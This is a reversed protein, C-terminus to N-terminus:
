GFVGVLFEDYTEFNDLVQGNQIRSLKESWVWILGKTMGMM